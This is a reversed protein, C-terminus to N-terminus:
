VLRTTIGVGRPPRYRNKFLDRETDTPETIDLQLLSETSSSASSEGGKDDEGESDTIVMGKLEDVDEQLDLLMDELKDKDKVQEPLFWGVAAFYLLGGLLCGVFPLFLPYIVFPTDFAENQGLFYSMARPFFDRFPNIASGANIGSALILSGYAVGITVATFLTGGGFLRHDFVTIYIIMFLISSWLQDWFLTAGNYDELFPFTAFAMRSKDQPLEALKSGHITAVFISGLIAGAAQGAFFIPVLILRVDGFVTLTLTVAPNLHPHFVSGCIAFALTLALGYGLAITSNDGYFKQQVQSKDQDGIMVQATTAAGCYVFIFMGLMETLFIRVKSIKNVSLEEDSHFFHMDSPFLSPISVKYIQM